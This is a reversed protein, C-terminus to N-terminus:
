RVWVGRATLKEETDVTRETAAPRDQQKRWFLHTRGIKKYGVKGPTELALRMLEIQATKQHVNIESAIENASKPEDSLSQLIKETYRQTTIESM